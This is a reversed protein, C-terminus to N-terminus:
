HTPKLPRSRALRGLLLEIEKVNRWAIGVHRRAAGINKQGISVLMRRSKPRWGM